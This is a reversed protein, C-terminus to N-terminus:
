VSTCAVIQHCKILSIPMYVQCLSGSRWACGLSHIEVERAQGVGGCSCFAAHALLVKERIQILHLKGDHGHLCHVSAEAWLMHVFHLLAQTTAYPRIARETAMTGRSRSFGFLATSVHLFFWICPAYGPILILRALLGMASTKLASEPLTGFAHQQLLRVLADEPILMTLQELDPTEVGMAVQVDGGNELLSLVQAV